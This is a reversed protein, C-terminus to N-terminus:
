LDRTLLDQILMNQINYCCNNIDISHQPLKLTHEINSIGNRFKLSKKLIEGVTSNQRWLFNVLPNNFYKGGKDDTIAFLSEQVVLRYEWDIGESDAVHIAVFENNDVNAIITKKLYNLENLIKFVSLLEQKYIPSMINDHSLPNLLINKHEILKEYPKFDLSMHQCLAKFNNILKELPLPKSGDEDTIIICLNKPLLNCLVRECEKRLYNACAPYDFLKLYKEASNIYSTPDIIIPVPIDTEYHQKNYMEKFVWSEGNTINSIRLKAINYFARDHTLILLQFDASKKLIIDLVVDRNSMDLSVLLDDLVLIKGGGSNKLKEDLMGLRISLAIATLKAENLFIHPKIINNKSSDLAKHIYTLELLIKPRHIHGDKARIGVRPDDKGKHRIEYVVLDLSSCVGLKVVKDTYTTKTSPTLLLESQEFDEPLFDVRLFRLFNERNYPTTFEM